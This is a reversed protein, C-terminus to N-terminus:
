ANKRNKLNQTFDLGNDEDGKEIVIQFQGEWLPLKLQSHIVTTIFGIIAFSAFLRKKRYLTKFIKSIDITEESSDIQQITNKLNM